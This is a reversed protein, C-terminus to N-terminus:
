KSTSRALRERIQALPIAGPARSGDTFFITPTGTVRYRQGLELLQEVPADCTASAPTKNDVMWDNWAKSRDKACWIARSKEVSDPSLIPFLFTYITADELKGLDRALRKCYGCNPDEFTVLTRKGNGRVQKVALELPLEAFDIALLTNLREETLNSRTKVNIMSGRFLHTVKEDTYFIESGAFIEYLGMAEVKTVKEPKVGFAKEFAGAVAESALAALPLNAILAVLAALLLNKRPFNM